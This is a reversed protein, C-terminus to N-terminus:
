VLTGIIIVKSIADLSESIRNADPPKLDGGNSRIGPRDDKGNQNFGNLWNELRQNSSRTDLGKSFLKSQDPSVPSLQLRFNQFISSFSFFFRCLCSTPM